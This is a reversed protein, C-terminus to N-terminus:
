QGFLKLVSSAGINSHALLMVSAKLKFSEAIFNTYEAAYDADRLNSEASILNSKTVELSARRSELDNAQIAGLSVQVQDVEAIAADIMAISDEAAEATSLDIDDLTSVAALSGESGDLINKGNYEATNIAHNYGATTAVAAAEYAAQAADSNGGENAAGIALTRLETLKSRLQGVSSSAYQYRNINASVNEIEQNLGAIQSRLQESIVLDAPGDSARNIRIGSSLRELSQFMKSRSKSIGQFLSMAGLNTNISFAM